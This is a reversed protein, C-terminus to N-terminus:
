WDGAWLLVRLQGWAEQDCNSGLDCFADSHILVVSHDQGARLATWRPPRAQRPQWHAWVQTRGGSRPRTLKLLQLSFDVEAPARHETWGAPVLAGAQQGNGSQCAEAWM